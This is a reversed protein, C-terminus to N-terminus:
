SKVPAESILKLLRDRQEVRISSNLDIVSDAATAVYSSIHRNNALDVRASDIADTACASDAAALDARAAASADAAAAAAAANVICYDSCINYFGDYNKINSSDWEKGDALLAMGDIVQDIFDQVVPVEKPMLKLEDRLFAWHVLSLDKGDCGVADPFAAFFAVAEEHSLNEFIIEAIRLLPQTLGFKEVAKLPSSSHALCGIFCGKSGDYYTGQVVEDAAIHQQVQLKMEQFNQTLM